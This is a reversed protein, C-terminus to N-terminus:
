EYTAALASLMGIKKGGLEFLESPSRAKGLRALRAKVRKYIDDLFDSERRTSVLKQYDFGPKVPKNRMITLLWGRLSKMPDGMPNPVYLFTPRSSKTIKIFKRKRTLADYGVTKGNLATTGLSLNDINIRRSQM